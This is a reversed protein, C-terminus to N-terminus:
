GNQSGTNHKIMVYGIRALIFITGLATVMALENM